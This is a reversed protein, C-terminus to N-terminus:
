IHILSLFLFVDGAQAELQYAGKSDTKTGRQTGEVRINVNALPVDLATIIGSIVKRSNQTQASLHTSFLIFFLTVIGKSIIDRKM